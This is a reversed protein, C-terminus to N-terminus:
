GARLRGHHRPGGMEGEVLDCSVVSLGIEDLATDCFLFVDEGNAQVNINNGTLEYSEIGALEVLPKWTNWGPMEEAFLQIYVTAGDAEAWAPLVPLLLLALLLSLTKTIKKM